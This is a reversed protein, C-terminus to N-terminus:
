NITSHISAHIPQTHSAQIRTGETYRVIAELNSGKGITLFGGQQLTLVSDKGRPEKM